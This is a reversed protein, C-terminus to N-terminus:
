PRHIPNVTNSKSLISWDGSTQRWYGHLVLFAGNQSWVGYECVIWEKCHIAWARSFLRLRCWLRWCMQLFVTAAFLPLLGVGNSHNELWEPVQQAPVHSRYCSTCEQDLTFFLVTVLAFTFFSECGTKVGLVDLAPPLYGQFVWLRIIGSNVLLSKEKVPDIGRSHCLRCLSGHGLSNWTRNSLAVSGKPPQEKSSRSRTGDRELSLFAHAKYFSHAVLHLM